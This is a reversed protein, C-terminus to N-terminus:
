TNETVTSTYDPDETTVPVKKGKCAVLSFVLMLIMGVAMIKKLSKLSKM